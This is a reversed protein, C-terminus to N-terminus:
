RNQPPETFSQRSDVALHNRKEPLTVQCHKSAWQKKAWAEAMFLTDCGDHFFLGFFEASSPHPFFEPRGLIM